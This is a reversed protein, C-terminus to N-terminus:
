GAYDPPRVELMADAVVHSGFRRRIATMPREIGYYSAAALLFSGLVMPACVSGIWAVPPFAPAILPAALSSPLLPLAICLVTWHSLYLSYSLRGVFLCPRLSLSARVRGMSPGYLVSGVVLMLGVGQVTFRWTERFWPDRVVLAVLLLALGAAPAAVTRVVALTSARFPSALLASLLAGFLISDIRTDTGHEVRYLFCSGDQCGSAVRWRWLTVLGILAFLTVVFAVRRRALLVALLPFVIYYHEEVALSWLVAFPAAVHPLGPDFGGVIEWINALYFVAALVDALTIRGGVMIFLVGSVAIMVLLAPYLRLMRRLYFFRLALGGTRDIEALILGTILYGSIFFFVTVGFIGPAYGFGFHSLLVLTISVARM